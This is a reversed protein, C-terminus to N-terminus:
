KNCIRGILPVADVIRYGHEDAVSFEIETVTAKFPRFKARIASLPASPDGPFPHVLTTHPLWIASGTWEDLYRPCISAVRRQLAALTETRLPDAVIISTAALYSVSKYQVRFPRQGKVATKCASILATEDGQLYTALTIHGHLPRVPIGLERASAQIRTLEDRSARDLRAIVCLM